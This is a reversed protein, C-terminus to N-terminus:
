CGAPIMRLAAEVELFRGLDAVEAELGPFIAGPLEQFPEVAVELATRRRVTKWTGLVRGDSLLAPHLIGGGPHIRKAYALDVALDRSAYGLLYTDFRPLLRVVPEAQDIEDLWPLQDKLMWFTDGGPHIEVLKDAILDWAQRAEGVPLGSWAALDKPGAPAYAALYRRALRALAEPRARPALPGTWNEWRVYTPKKEREPGACLLGEVAARYLLHVTAQGEYPLRATRLQAAIEQRTLGPQDSLATLLLGLGAKTRAEDWGLEAMRRQGGAIL